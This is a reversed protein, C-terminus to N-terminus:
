RSGVVQVRGGVVVSECVGVHHENSLVGLKWRGVFVGHKVDPDECGNSNTAPQDEKQGEDHLAGDSELSRLFHEFLQQVGDDM